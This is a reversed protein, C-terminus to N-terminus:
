RWFGLTGMRYLFSGAWLVLALYILAWAKTVPVIRSLSRFHMVYWREGFHAIVNCIISDVLLVYFLVTEVM